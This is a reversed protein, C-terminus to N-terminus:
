AQVDVHLQGDPGRTVAPKPARKKQRERREEEDDPRPDEREVRDLPRLPVVPDTGSRVGLVRPIEQM